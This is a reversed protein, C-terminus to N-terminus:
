LLRKLKRLYRRKTHTLKRLRIKYLLYYSDNLISPLPKVEFHYNINNIM